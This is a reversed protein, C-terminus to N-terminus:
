PASIPAPAAARRRLLIVVLALAGLTVGVDALNFVWFRHYGLGVDIFDVVGRASRIRDLLNGVAGGILLACALAIARDEAAARRYMTALVALVVISAAVLAFRQGLFIGTAAGTNYALTLRVVDGIFAHPMYAPSLREVALRKTACDACLITLAAPWFAWAKPTLSRM